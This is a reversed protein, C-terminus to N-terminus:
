KKIDKDIRGSFLVYDYLGSLGPHLRITRLKRTVGSVTEGTSEILVGQSPLKGSDVTVAIPEPDSNYLLRIRAMVPTHNNGPIRVGPKCPTGGPPPVNKRNITAKFYFTTSRGTVDDTITTAPIALGPNVARSCFHNETNRRFDWPDFAFKRSMFNPGHNYIITVVMAASNAVTPDSGWYFNIEDPVNSATPMASTGFDKVLAVQAVEDSEIAEPYVFNRCQSPPPLPCGSELTTEAEAKDLLDFDVNITTNFAPDVALQGLAEEIGAEAAFYARNSEDSTTTIRIDTVARSAVSIVIALAIVMIMLFLILM